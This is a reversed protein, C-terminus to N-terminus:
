PAEDISATVSAPTVASSASAAAAPAHKGALRAPLDPGISDNRWSYALKM